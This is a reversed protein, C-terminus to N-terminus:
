ANPIPLDGSRTDNESSAGARQVPFRLERFTCRNSLNAAKLRKALNNTERNAIEDQVLLQFFELYSYNGETAEKIRLDLNEIMGPMRLRRLDNTLHYHLDM